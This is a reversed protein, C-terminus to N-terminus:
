RLARVMVVCRMPSGEGTASCGLMDGGEKSDVTSGETGLDRTGIKETCM